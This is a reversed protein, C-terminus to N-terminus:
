LQLFSGRPWLGSTGIWSQALLQLNKKHPRTVTYERGQKMRLGYEGTPLPQIDEVWATNILVSRHIRLFGHRTLKEEITALRERVMHSGSARRLLVYNGKAEVALVDSANIFLIKKKAKIAIRASGHKVLTQAQLLAELTTKSREPGIVHEPDCVGEVSSRPATTLVPFLETTSIVSAGWSGGGRGPVHGSLGRTALAAFIAASVNARFIPRPLIWKVSNPYLWQSGSFHLSFPKQIHRRPRRRGVLLFDLWPSRVGLRQRCRTWRRWNKQM